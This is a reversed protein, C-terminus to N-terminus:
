ETNLFLYFPENYENEAENSFVAGQLTSIYFPHLVHFFAWCLVHVLINGTLLIGKTGMNLMNWTVQM